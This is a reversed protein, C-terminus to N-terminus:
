ILNKLVFLIAESYAETPSHYFTYNSCDNYDDSIHIIKDEWLTQSLEEDNYPAVSIWILHKEYLWMCVEAITPASYLGANRKHMPSDGITKSNYKFRLQDSYINLGSHYSTVPLDFGKEKLLKSTEFNVITNM